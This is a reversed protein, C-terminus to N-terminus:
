PIQVSGNRAAMIQGEADRVVLRLVYAGPAVDFTTRINIGSAPLKAMTEDRLKLEVTKEIGSVFNGNRDFIGSVVTLTDNNRDGAKRYRLNRIDIRAMVSLKAQYDSPKFFQMNLDIPIDHMEERSFVAERIEDKAQEEPDTAHKPAYYGRRAQLNLDKREKVTVKLLHFNGDFRLNQPSFGLVYVFEPQAALRKLGERLDNDNHFYTGGTGDALEAMIDENALASDREYQNKITQMSSNGGARSADLVPDPNYVGRADLSSITTNARIARDLLDSEDTRHDITLYYGSSVLIINRSGPMISIRRVVDRLVGNALRTESDGVSLASQAAAHAIGQAQVQAAQISAPDNGAPPNCSLAEATAAALAQSDNKNVIMDAMYYQIEPCDFTTSGASTWPQIRNLTDRLQDRDGTFDLTTRGSTTFVAVRSTPELSGTVHQVVALRARTLDGITLHVDDVVYAIFRQPIPPAPAPAAPQAADSDLASVSPILPAEPREISFRTIIQPKGKDTLQFDEQKLTGIAKGARDRVVVPVLVLNVGTRFTAPADHTTVEATPPAPAQAYVM